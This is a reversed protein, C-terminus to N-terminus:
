SASFVKCVKKYTYYKKKKPPPPETKTHKELKLKM